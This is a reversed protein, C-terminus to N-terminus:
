NRWANKDFTVWYINGLGNEIGDAMQLIISLKKHTKVNFEENERQSTFFLYKGDHTVFPCYDLKDSNISRGMNKPKTWNNKGDQYSIYMDGGGLDDERGWSSFILYSEDPSIYANFEYNSSNIPEGLNLPQLYSGNEFRSCYIDELGFSDGYKATFYLNGSSALSPYYEDGDTNVPLGVNVPKNWGKEPNIYWIDYDKKEANESLPRKSVFFLKKGDPSYAPELDSYIGSFAACEPESWFFGDFALYVIVSLNNAPLVISYFMVDGSPSIAFDRENRFTSIIEPSFVKPVNGPSALGFYQWDSEGKTSPPVKKQSPNCSVSVLTIISILLWSWVGNRSM